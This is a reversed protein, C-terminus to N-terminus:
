RESEYGTRWRQIIKLHIHHLLYMFNTYKFQSGRIPVIETCSIRATTLLNYWTDMTFFIVISVNWVHASQWSLASPERSVRSKWTAFYAATCFFSFSGKPVASHANINKLSIRHHRLFRMRLNASIAANGMSNVGFDLVRWCVAILWENRM